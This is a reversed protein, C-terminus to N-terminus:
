ADLIKLDLRDLQAPDALMEISVIRGDAIEFRFVVRPRGGQAWVAGATGDWSPPGPRVPM